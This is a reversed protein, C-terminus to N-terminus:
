LPRLAMTGEEGSVEEPQNAKGRRLKMQFIRMRGKLSIKQM